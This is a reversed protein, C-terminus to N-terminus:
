FTQWKFQLFYIHRVMIVAVYELTNVSVVDMVIMAAFQPHFHLLRFNILSFLITLLYWILKLLFNHSINVSGVHYRQQCTRCYILYLKENSFTTRDLTVKIAMGHLRGISTEPIWVSILPVPCKVLKKGVMVAQSTMSREYNVGTGNQM